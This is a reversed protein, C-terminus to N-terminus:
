SPSKNRGLCYLDIFVSDIYELLFVKAFIGSKYGSAPEYLNVVVVIGCLDNNFFERPLVQAYCIM